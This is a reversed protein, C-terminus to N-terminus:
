RQRSNKWASQKMMGIKTVLYKWEKLTILPTNKKNKKKSVGERCWPLNLKKYTKHYFILELWNHYIM